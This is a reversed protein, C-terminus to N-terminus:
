TSDDSRWSSRDTEFPANRDGNRLNMHLAWGVLAFDPQAKRVILRYINRPDKRTGGFLDRLQLRHVGDEKIEVKGIIDPSGANNRLVTM